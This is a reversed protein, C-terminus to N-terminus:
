WPSRASTSRSDLSVRGTSNGGSMGSPVSTPMRTSVRTTMRQGSCRAVRIRGPVARRYWHHSRAPARLVCKSRRPVLCTSSADTRTTSECPDRVKPAADDSLRSCGPPPTSRSQGNGFPVVVWRKDLKALKVLAEGSEDLYCVLPHFGFRWQLQGGGRGERLALHGAHRRLGPTIREPAAGNAWARERAQRRAERLIGLREPTIAAIVRWATPSSAVEGFLDPQERLVALDALCDGGNAISVVLGRVVRGSRPGFSPTSHAGNGGIAGGDLGVQRRARDPRCEGCPRCDRRRRHHPHAHQPPQYAEGQLTGRSPHQSTKCRWYGPPATRQLSTAASPTSDAARAQGV